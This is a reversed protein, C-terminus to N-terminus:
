GIVPILKKVLMYLAYFIRVVELLFVIGFVLIPITMNFNSFVFMYLLAMIPTTKQLSLDAIGQAQHEPLPATASTFMSTLGGVISDWFNTGAAPGPLDGINANAWDATLTELTETYVGGKLWGDSNNVNIAYGDAAWTGAPNPIFCFHVHYNAPQQDAYGCTDDFSGTVIGSIAQGQDYHDGTRQGRDVLHTYLNEGVRLAVQHDDRCVYSVNGDNSSYVMNEEPFLDVAKWGNLAYGCNHVGLVGYIANTKDRFPLINVSGGKGYGPNGPDDDQSNATSLAASEVYGPLGPFDAITVLGLWISDSLRMKEADQPLGAVSLYYYNGSQDINTIAYTFISRQPADEALLELTRQQLDQRVPITSPLMTIGSEEMRVQGTPGDKPWFTYWVVVALLVPLLYLWKKM